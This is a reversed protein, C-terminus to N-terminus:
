DPVLKRMLALSSTLIVLGRGGLGYLRHLSIPIFIMLGEQWTRAYALFEQFLSSPYNERM